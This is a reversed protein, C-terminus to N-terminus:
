NLSGKNLERIFYHIPYNDEAIKWHHVLTNEQTESLINGLNNLVEGYVQANAAKLIKAFRKDLKMDFRFVAGYGVGDERIDIAAIPITEGGVTAQYGVYPPDEKVAILKEKIKEFDNTGFINKMIAPDLSYPGIAMTEEGDSVAKLPFEGRIENLMGDTLKKNTTLAEVAGMAFEKSKQRHERVFKAATRDGGAAMAEAAKLMIKSVARNSKKELLEAVSKIGKSSFEKQLAKDKKLLNEIAYANKKAFASLRERQNNTYINQDLEEGLNEDWDSFKKTGSNLFNVNVDKKLSVEDLIDKGDPTQVKFYVDTSFGKDDEYNEMGLANVEEKVDWASAVIQSGEPYEKSIRNRIAKRNEMAAKVWSPDVIKKSKPDAEKQAKLHELLSSELEEAQDDDLSTFAMTLIEGAQSSIKGAGASSEMFYSIKSTEDDLKTNVFRNILDNYKEPYNGDLQPMEYPPPPEPFKNKKNKADFDADDPVITETFPETEVSDVDSLSKDKGAIDTKSIDRYDAEDESGRDSDDDDKKEKPDENNMFDAFKAAAGTSDNFDDIRKEFDKAEKDSLEGPEDVALLTGDSGITMVANDDDDVFVDPDTDSPHLGIEEGFSNITKREEDSIKVKVEDDQAKKQPADKSKRLREAAIRAPHDPKQKLAASVAMTKSKGDTAQYKVEEEDAEILSILDFSSL